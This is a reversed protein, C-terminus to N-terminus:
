LGLNWANDGANGLFNPQWTMQAKHDNKPVQFIIDGEVNGGASLKGSSLENNATYTSPPVEEDTINGAGSRAHFDFPNYDVEGTSNNVMKIHVVIFQNGPKPQTFQDGALKKVSVLTTAVDNLTITGGVKSVNNASTVPTNGSAPTFTAVSTAVSNVASSAGRLAIASVGICAFVLVAIIGLAIWLGTRRKKPPPQPPYYPQGPPYPPYPQPTYTQENPGSPPNNQMIKEKTSFLYRYATHYCLLRTICFLSGAM